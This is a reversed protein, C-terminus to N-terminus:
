KIKISKASSIVKKPITIELLGNKSDAEIKDSDVDNPLTFSRQFKGFNSEIKSYNEGKIDKKSERQATISLINNDVKLDIGDKTVGALEVEIYYNKKDERENVRPSYYNNIGGRFTSNFKNEFEKFNSLFDSNFFNNNFERFMANYPNTNDRSLDSLEQALYELVSNLKNKDLKNLNEKEFTVLAESLSNLAKDLIEKESIENAFLTTSILLVASLRKFM